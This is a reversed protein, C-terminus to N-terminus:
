AVIINHCQLGTVLPLLCTQARSLSINAQRNRFPENQLNQRKVGANIELPINEHVDLPAIRNVGRLLPPTGNSAERGARRCSQRRDDFSSVNAYPPSSTSRDTHFVSVANRGRESM